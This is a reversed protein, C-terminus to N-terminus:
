QGREQLLHNKDAPGALRAVLRALLHSMDLPTLLREYSDEPLCSQAQELMNSHLLINIRREQKNDHERVVSFFQRATQTPLSDVIIIVDVQATSRLRSYATECNEAKMVIFGHRRLLTSLTFSERMDSDLLLLAKGHALQSLQPCREIQASNVVSMKQPNKFSSGPDTSTVVSAAVLGDISSGNSLPRMPLHLTFCSGQGLLSQVTIKGGLLTALERCIALGLGTGEYRRSIAEDVQQFPEFIVAQNKAEIGIGTDSVSYAIAGNTPEGVLRVTLAISGKCTFKLANSLFNKLIQLLRGQDTQFTDPVNGIVETHLTLNKESALHLFQSELQRFIGEVQVTEWRTTMKGAEVKSLDLIDNILRLLDQGQQKIIGAAKVQDANLNGDINASLKEALILLSHLPTRLEHSVNALFTSKYKSALESAELAKRESIDQFVVAIGVISGNASVLPSTTCEVPFQHGGSHRFWHQGTAGATRGQHEMYFGSPLRGRDTLSDKRLVMLESVYTDLLQEQARGLLRAAAPNAFTIRGTLELSLIGEGVSRLLLENNDRLQRIENLSQVLLQQHSAQELFVRVKSLLINPQLPKFLYDVAGFDYGKNEHAHDKDAATVFIIPTQRSADHGRILSATEFGDMDPMMVDLLILAFNHRLIQALAEHGSEVTILEADLVSLVRKLSILNEVRDDVALIKPPATPRNTSNNQMLDVAM